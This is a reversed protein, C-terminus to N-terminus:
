SDPRSRDFSDYVLIDITTDPSLYPLPWNSDTDFGHGRVINDESVM